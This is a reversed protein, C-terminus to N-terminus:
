ASAAGLETLRAAQFRLVTPITALGVAISVLYLATGTRRVAELTIAATESSALSTTGASVGAAVVFHAISAIVLAMMAMMMGAIFLKATTPMVLTKVEDGIAEQVRGGGSRFVGLIRAIAFSIAAFIAAFGLFTLGPVVHGLAAISSESGGDAITQSRVLATIFGAAFFMLAMAWMPAWLRTGMQQPTNLGPNSRTTEYEFESMQPITM